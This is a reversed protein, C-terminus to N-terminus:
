LDSRCIRVWQEFIDHMYKTKEIMSALKNGQQLLKRHSAIDNEVFYKRVETTSAGYELCKRNFEESNVFLGLWEVNGDNQQGILSTVLPHGAIGVLPANDTQVIFRPQNLVISEQSMFDNFNIVRGMQETLDMIDNTKIQGLLYVTFPLSPFVSGLANSTLFRGVELNSRVKNGTKIMTCGNTAWRVFSALVSAYHRSSSSKKMEGTTEDFHADFCTPIMAANLVRKTVELDQPSIQVLDVVDELYERLWLLACIVGTFLSKTNGDSGLALYCNVPKGNKKNEYQLRKKGESIVHDITPKSITRYMDKIFETPDETPIQRIASSVLQEFTM